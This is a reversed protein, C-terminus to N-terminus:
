APPPAPYTTTDTEDNTVNVNQQQIGLRTAIRRGRQIGRTAAIAEVGAVEEAEIKNDIVQTCAQCRIITEPVNTTPRGCQCPNTRVNTGLGICRPNDRCIWQNVRVPAGTGGCNCRYSCTTCIFRNGLRQLVEGCEKCIRRNGVGKGIYGMGQFFYVVAIGLVISLLARPIMGLFGDGMIMPFIADLSDPVLMSGITDTIFIAIIAPLYSGSKLNDTGKLMKYIAFATAIWALNIITGVTKGTNALTAAMMFIILYKLKGIKSVGSVKGELLGFAFTFIVISVLLTAIPHADPENDVDWRLIGYRKQPNAAQQNNPNAIRINYKGLHDTFITTGPPPGGAAPAPAGGAAIKREGLLYQEADYVFPENTILKAGLPLVLFLSIILAITYFAGNALGGSSKTLTDFKDSLMPLIFAIGIWVITANVLPIPLFGGPATVLFQAIFPHNYVLIISNNAGVHGAAFVNVLPALAPVQALMAPVAIAYSALISGGSILLFMMGGKTNDKMINSFPPLFNAIVYLVVFIIGLNILFNGINKANLMLALLPVQNMVWNHALIPQLTLHRALAISIVLVIATLIGTQQGGKNMGDKIGPLLYTIALLPLGIMVLNLWFDTNQLIKLIPINYLLANGKNKGIWGAIAVSSILIALTVAYSGKGSKDLMHNFPPLLSAIFFLGAAIMALNAWFEGTDIVKAITPFQKAILNYVLKKDNKLGGKVLKYSLAGAAAAITLFLASAQVGKSNFIEKTLPVISATILIFALIIAFNIWFNPATLFELGGGPAFWKRDVSFKGLVGLGSLVLVSIIIGVAGIGGKGM